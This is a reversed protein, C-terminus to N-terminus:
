KNERDQEPDPTKQNDFGYKKEMKEVANVRQRRRAEAKALVYDLSKRDLEIEDAEFHNQSYFSAEKFHEFEYERADREDQDFIEEYQSFESYSVSPDFVHSPTSGDDDLTMKHMVLNILSNQRDMEFYENFNDPFLDTTQRDELDKVTLGPNYEEATLVVANRVADCAACCHVSFDERADVRTVSKIKKSNKYVSFDDATIHVFEDPREKNIVFLEKGATDAALNIASRGEIRYEIQKRVLAGNPGTLPWGVRLMARKVKAHQDAGYALTFGNQANQQPLVTYVIGLSNAYHRFLELEVRDLGEYLKVKEPALNNFYMDAAVETVMGRKAQLVQTAKEIVSNDEALYVFAITDDDKRDFKAYLVRNERLLDEYDKADENAVEVTFTKLGLKNVVNQMEPTSLEGGREVISRLEENSLRERMKAALAIAAGGVDKKGMEYLTLGVDTGFSLARAGQELLIQAIKLAIEESNLAM